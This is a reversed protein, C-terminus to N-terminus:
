PTVVTDIAHIVGNSADVDAIIVTSVKGKEDTLNVKGDKLTATLKGGQVTTIVFSGNNANIAEVVDKARFEGAVVHYTLISTLIEKNEPKLLDGVVGEPLKDFAANVPAFVTFPGASSLTEVLNAAKLAAVLTTFNENGLAVEVITQKSEEEIESFPIIEIESKDIAFVTTITMFMLVLVSIKKITKM